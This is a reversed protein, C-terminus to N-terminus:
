CHGPCRNEKLRLALRLAFMNCAMIGGCKVPQVVGVSHCLWCDLTLPWTGRVLLVTATVHAPSVVPLQRFLQELAPLVGASLMV